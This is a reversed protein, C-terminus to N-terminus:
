IWPESRWLHNCIQSEPNRISPRFASARLLAAAERDRHATDLWPEANTLNNGTM